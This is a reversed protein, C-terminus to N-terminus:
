KEPLLEESLVCRFATPLSYKKELEEPAAWVFDGGQERCTMYVGDLLWTIHTFIHRRKVISLLNEPECGWTRIQEAMQSLEMTGQVNPFEWLSALLGRDPRKRLAIKGDCVLIFVTRQEERRATNKKRVPLIETCGSRRALCIGSVPCQECKPATGPLCILQGLEMFSQTLMGPDPAHPYVKELMRTINQKCSPALINEHIECVRAMVRLVNGDVAPVPIGFCVSAIAGATYEGIGSLRRIEAFTQPFRGGYETMIQVAAKKLNRARSYYGLGEWLKLLEDEPCDALSKVDPLRELFRLYATKVAEVRTQQLMIESVWVHYPDKDQRWPLRRHHAPYWNLLLDPLEGAAEAKEQSITRMRSFLKEYIPLMQPETCRDQVEEESLWMVNRNEDPKEAIKQNEPALLGYTVNFHLHAPVPKGRKEHPPVPLIDVSLIKRSQPFIRTVSTEEMAERLAAGLLDDDGDAHGGTWGVSRYILHYAMLTKRCDPSLIFGSCTIHGAECDRSLIADGYKRINALLIEKAEAEEQTYPSFSQIEALLRESM